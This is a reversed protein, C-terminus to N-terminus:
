KCKQLFRHAELHDIAAEIWFACPQSVHMLHTQELEQFHGGWIQSKPLFGIAAQHAQLHHLTNLHSFWPKQPLLPDTWPILHLSQVHFVILQVPTCSICERCWLPNYNWSLRVLCGFDCCRIVNLNIVMFGGVVVFIVITGVTLITSINLKPIYKEPSSQCHWNTRARKFLSGTSSYCQFMNNQGFGVICLM